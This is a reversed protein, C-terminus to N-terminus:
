KKVGKEADYEQVGPLLEIHDISTTIPHWRDCVFDYREFCYNTNKRLTVVGRKVPFELRETPDCTDIYRFRNAYTEVEIYEDSYRKYKIIESTTGDIWVLKPKKEAKAM